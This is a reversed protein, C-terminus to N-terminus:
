ENMFQIWKSHCEAAHAYYTKEYLSIERITM